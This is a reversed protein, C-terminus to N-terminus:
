KVAHVVHAMELTAPEASGLIAQMAKSLLEWQSRSETLRRRGEAPLEYYKRERGGGSTDWYSKVLGKSQLNYLLPYLTGQGLKLVEASRRTLEEILEYGYMPRASLCHLVVTPAVGKLWQTELKM